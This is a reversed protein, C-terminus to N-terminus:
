KNEIFALGCGTPYKNKYETWDPNNSGGLRKDIDSYRQRFDIDDTDFVFNNWGRMTKISQATSPKTSVKLAGNGMDHISSFKVDSSAAFCRQTIRMAGFEKPGDLFLAINKGKLIHILGPVIKEGDGQKFSLNEYGSLRNVAANVDDKHEMLDVSYLHIDDGFYKLWMETSDGNRVGSEIITDIKYMKCMAIFALAETFFVGKKQWVIDSLKECFEQKIEDCTKFFKNQM